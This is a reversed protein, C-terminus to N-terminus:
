PLKPAVFAREGPARADIEGMDLDAHGSQTAVRMRVVYRGPDAVNARFRGTADTRAEVVLAAGKRELVVTRNAVPRGDADNVCGTVTRVPLRKILLDRSGTRLDSADVLLHVVTAASPRDEVITALGSALGDFVFSGDASTVTEAPVDAGISLVRPAATRLELRAVGNGDADVVRGAITAGHWLRVILDKTGGAPLGVRTVPYRSLPSEPGVFYLVVPSDRPIAVRFRGDSSTRARIERPIPRTVDLQVFVCANVVPRGDRAVVAGEIAVEDPKVSEIASAPSPGPEAPVTADAPAVIPKALAPAAPASGAPPSATPGTTAYALLVPAAFLAAIAFHRRTM